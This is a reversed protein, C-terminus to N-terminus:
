KGVGPIGGATPNWMKPLTVHGEVEPAIVHRWLEISADASTSESAAYGGPRGNVFYVQDTRTPPAHDLAAVIARAGESPSKYILGALGTRSLAGVAGEGIHSTLLPTWVLGPHADIIRIPPYDKLLSRRLLTSFQMLALKSQAYVSLDDDVDDQLSDLWSKDDGVSEELSFSEVARLHASSGVNIVTPITQSEDDSAARTLLPLLALTLAAPGILNVKMTLRKSKGMIGANNILVTLPSGREKVSSAMDMASQLADAHYEVFSINPLRGGDDGDGASEGSRGGGGEVPAGELMGRIKEALAEGRRADRAAIIVDYGRFALDTAIESGIGGTAGTVVALERNPRRRTRKSFSQIRPRKGAFLRARARVLARVFVNHLLETLVGWVAWRVVNSKSRKMRKTKTSKAAVRPRSSAPAAKETSPGIKAAPLVRNKGAVNTRPGVSLALAVSQTVVLRLLVVLAKAM